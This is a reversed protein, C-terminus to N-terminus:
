ERFVEKLIADTSDLETIQLNHLVRSKIGIIIKVSKVMSSNLCNM